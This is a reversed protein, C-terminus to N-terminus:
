DAATSRLRVRNRYVGATHGVCEWGRGVSTAALTIWVQVPASESDGTRQFEIANVTVGWGATPSLATSLQSSWDALEVSAVLEGRDYLLVTLPEGHALPGSALDHFPGKEGSKAEAVHFTGAADLYALRAPRGTPYDAPLVDIRREPAPSFALALQQHGTISLMCYSNLHSYTPREVVSLAEVKLSGIEDPAGIKITSGDSYSWRWIDSTAEGRKLKRAHGPPPALISWFGDPSLRDFTLLPECRITLNGARFTLEGSSPLFMGRDGVRMLPSITATTEGSWANTSPASTPVTSPAAPVQAWLVFCGAAAGALMSFTWCPVSPKAKRNLLVAALGIVAIPLVGAVWLRALSVPFLLRGTLTASVWAAALGCLLAAALWTRGGLVRYLAAVAVVVLAVPLVSNLWFRCHTAPFGKPSLWWYFAALVLHGALVVEAAIRTAIGIDKM